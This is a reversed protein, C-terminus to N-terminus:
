KSRALAVQRVVANRALNDLAGKYASVTMRNLPEIQYHTGTLKGSRNSTPRKGKRIHLNAPYETGGPIQFYRWGSHGFWGEVDHLSTGGGTDVLDGTARPLVTVDARSTREINNRDFYTTEEFRPHLVGAVPEGDVVLDGAFTGDIIARYLDTETTPM